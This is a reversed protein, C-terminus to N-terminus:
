LWQWDNLFLLGGLDKGEDILRDILRLSPCMDCVALSCWQVM